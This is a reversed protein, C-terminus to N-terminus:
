KYDSVYQENMSKVQEVTLELNIGNAFTLTNGSITIGQEQLDLVIQNKITEKKGITSM